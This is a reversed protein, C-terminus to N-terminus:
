IRIGDIIRREQDEDKRLMVEHAIGLTSLEVVLARLWALSPEGPNRSSTPAYICTYSGSPEIRIMSDVLKGDDSIPYWLTMDWPRPLLEGSSPDELRVNHGISLQVIGDPEGPKHDVRMLKRTLRKNGM